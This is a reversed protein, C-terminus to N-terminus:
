KSSGDSYCTLNYIQIIRDIGRIGADADGDTVADLCTYYAIRKQSLNLTDLKQNLEKLQAEIKSLDINVEVDGNSSTTESSNLQGNELISVINRLEAEINATDIVQSGSDKEAIQSLLNEINELDISNESQLEIQPVAMSQSASFGIGGGLILAILIILISKTDLNM